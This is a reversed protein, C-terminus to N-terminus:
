PDSNAFEKLKLLYGCGTSLGSKGLGEQLEVESNSLYKVSISFEFMVSKTRVQKPINPYDPIEWGPVKRLEANLIYKEGDGVTLVADFHEPQHKQKPMVVIRFFVYEDNNTPHVHITKVLLFSYFPRTINTPNVEFPVDFAHVPLTTFALVVLALCLLLKSNVTQKM